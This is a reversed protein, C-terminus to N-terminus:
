ESYQETKSKILININDDDDVLTKLVKNNSIIDRIIKEVKAEVDFIDTGKTCITTKFSIQINSKIMYDRM